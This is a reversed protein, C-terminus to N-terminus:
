KLANVFLDINTFQVNNITCSLDLLLVGSKTPIHVQNENLIEESHRESFEYDIGNFIFGNPKTTINM